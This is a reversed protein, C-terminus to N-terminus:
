VGSDAHPFKVRKNSHICVSLLECAETCDFSRGASCLVPPESWSPQERTEQFAPSLLRSIGGQTQRAHGCRDRVPRHSPGPRATRRELSPLTSASCLEACSYLVGRWGQTAWPLHLPAGQGGGLVRAWPLGFWHGRPGCM